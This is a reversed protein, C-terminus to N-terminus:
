GALIGVFAKFGQVLGLRLASQVVVPFHSGPLYLCYDTLIVFLGSDIDFVHLLLCDATGISRHEVGVLGLSPGGLFFLVLVPV